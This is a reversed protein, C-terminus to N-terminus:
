AVVIRANRNTMELEGLKALTGDDFRAQVDPVFCQEFGGAGYQPNSETTGVAIDCSRTFEYCQLQPRYEGDLPRAQVGENYAQADYGVDMLDGELVGFGSIGPAGFWVRDGAVAQENRWADVGPYRDDGQATM